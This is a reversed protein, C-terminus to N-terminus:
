LKVEMGFPTEPFDGKKIYLERRIVRCPDNVLDASQLFACFDKPKFNKKSGIRATVRIKTIGEDREKIGWQLILDEFEKIAGKM